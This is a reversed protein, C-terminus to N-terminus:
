RLIRIRNHNFEIEINKLFTGTRTGLLTNRLRKSEEQLHGRELALSLESMTKVPIVVGNQCNRLSIQMPMGSVGCCVAGFFKVCISCM